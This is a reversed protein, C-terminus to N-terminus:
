LGECNAAPTYGAAEAEEKADFWIKNEEKINQAGSCWPLHYKTGNRSAVYGGGSVMSGAISGKGTEVQPIQGAGGASVANEIRVPERITEQKSLRGLGFSAMGVFVILVAVFIDQRNLADFAGKCTRWFASIM